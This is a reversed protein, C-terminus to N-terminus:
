QVKLIYLQFLYNFLLTTAVLNIWRTRSLKQLLGQPIQDTLGVPIDNANVAEVEITYIGSNINKWRKLTSSIDCVQFIELDWKGAGFWSLADYDEVWIRLEEATEGYWFMVQHLDIGSQALVQLRKGAHDVANATCGRLYAELPTLRGEGSKQHPDAGGKLLYM